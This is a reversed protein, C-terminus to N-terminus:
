DFELNAEGNSVWLITHHDITTEHSELPSNFITISINLIVFGQSSNPTSGDGIGHATRIRAVLLVLEDLPMENPPLQSVLGFFRRGRINEQIEIM